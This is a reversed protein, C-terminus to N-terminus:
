GKKNRQVEPHLDGDVGSALSAKRSKQKPDADPMVKVLRAQDQMSEQLADEGKHHALFLGLRRVVFASSHNAWSFIYGSFIDNKSSM